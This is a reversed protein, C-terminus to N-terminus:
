KKKGAEIKAKTRIKKKAQRARQRMKTTTSSKGM